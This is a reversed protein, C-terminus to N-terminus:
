GRQPQTTHHNATQRSCTKRVIVKVIGLVKIEDHRLILPAMDPTM